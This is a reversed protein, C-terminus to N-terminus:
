CAAACFVFRTSTHTASFVIRVIIGQQCHVSIADSHKTFVNCSRGAFVTKMESTSHIVIMLVLIVSLYLFCDM